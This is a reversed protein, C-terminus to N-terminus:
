FPIDDPNDDSDKNGNLYGNISSQKGNLLGNNTAIQQCDQHLNLLRLQVQTLDSIVQSVLLRQDLLQPHNILSKLDDM